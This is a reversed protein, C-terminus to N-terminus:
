DPRLTMWFGNMEDGTSYPTACNAQRLVWEIVWNSSKTRQLAPISRSKLFLRLYCASFSGSSTGTWSCATQGLGRPEPWWTAIGVSRPVADNLGDLRTM